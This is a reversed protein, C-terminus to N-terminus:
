VNPAMRMRLFPGRKGFAAHFDFGFWQGKWAKAFTGRDWRIVVAFLRQSKVPRAIQGAFGVFGVRWRRAKRCICRGVRIEVIAWVAFLRKGALGRKGAVPGERRLSGQVLPRMLVTTKPLVAIKATIAARLPAAPGQASWVLATWFVSSWSLAAWLWRFVALPSGTLAAGSLSAWAAWRLPTSLPGRKALPHRKVVASAATGFGVIRAMITAAAILVTMASRNVIWALAIRAVVVAVVGLVAEVVPRTIVPGMEAAWIIAVRSIAAGIIAVRPIAVGPVPTSEIFGRAPARLIAKCLMTGSWSRTGVLAGHVLPLL